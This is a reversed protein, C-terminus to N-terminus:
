KRARTAQRLTKIFDDPDDVNLVFENVTRRGSVSVPDSLKVSVYGTRGTIIYMVPARKSHKIGLSVNRESSHDVSEIKSLPITKKFYWGQHLHLSKKTIMHSTFLPSVAYVMFSILVVTILLIPPLLVFLDMTGAANYMIMFLIIVCILLLFHIRFQKHVVKKEYTFERPLVPAILEKKIEEDIHDVSIGLDEKKRRSTTVIEGKEDLGAARRRLRTLEEEVKRRERPDPGERGFKRKKRGVPGPEEHVEPEDAPAEEVTELRPVEGPGDPELELEPIPEPLGREEVEEEPEEVPESRRTVPIRHEGLDEEPERELDEEGRTEQERYGIKEIGKPDGIRYVKPLRSEAKKAQQAERVMEEAEIEFPLPEDVTDEDAVKLRKPGGRDVIRDKKGSPPKDRIPPDPTDLEEVKRKPVRVKRQKNKM